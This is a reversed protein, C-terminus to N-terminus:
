ILFPIDRSSEDIEKLRSELQRKRKKSTAVFSTAELYYHKIKDIARINSLIVSVDLYRKGRPYDGNRIIADPTLSHLYDGLEKVTSLNIETTPATVLYLVSSADAPNCNFSLDSIAEDMAAIGQQTTTSKGRYNASRWFGFWNFPLSAKGYGVVTWGSITQIIDGADLLKTGVYKPKKEEGACLINYFPEVIQANIQALNTKLSSEKEVYRQNDILFIADAVENVSKLCTASNYITREETREEHEFPLVVLNYVPKDVYREKIVQTMVGIAGSGTGGAAGACLLFADSEAFQPVERIADIINDSDERAIEAGLENIKGVGHGGAKRGGILIRHHYDSKINNLGNLDALDTNVAFTDTVIEIRRRHRARKNLRAFNDAINSGCQGFGIVLLKM